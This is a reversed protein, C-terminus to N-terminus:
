AGSVGLESPDVNRESWRVNVTLSVGITDGFLGCAQGPAIVYPGGRWLRQVGVDAALVQEQWAGGPIGAVPAADLLGAQGKAFAAGGGRGDTMSGTTAGNSATLVRSGIGTVATCAYLIREVVMLITSAPPNQIFVGPRGAGGVSLFGGEEFVRERRSLRFEEAAPDNMVIVPMLDDIANLETASRKAFIRRAM